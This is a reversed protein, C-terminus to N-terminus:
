EIKQGCNMCFMAGEVLKAGCNMCFLKKPAPQPAAPQQVPAPQVPQAPTNAEYALFQNVDLVIPQAPVGLIRSICATYDGAHKKYGGAVVQAMTYRLNIATGNQYPMFHATLSGGNMNYKFSYDLGFNITKYPETKCRKGFQQYAAQVFADYVANVPAPYFYCIDKRM